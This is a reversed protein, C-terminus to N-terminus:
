DQLASGKVATELSVTDSNLQVIPRGRTGSFQNPAPLGRVPIPTGIRNGFTGQSRGQGYSEQGAMNRSCTRTGTVDTGLLGQGQEPDRQLVKTEEQMERDWNRGRTKM